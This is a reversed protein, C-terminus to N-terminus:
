LYNPPFFNESFLYHVYSSCNVDENHCMKEKLNQERLPIVYMNWANIEAAVMLLMVTSSVAPCYSRSVDEFAM